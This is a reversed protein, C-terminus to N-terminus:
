TTGLNERHRDVVECEFENKEAIWRRFSGSEGGQKIWENYEDANKPKAVRIGGKAPHQGFRLLGLGLITAALL